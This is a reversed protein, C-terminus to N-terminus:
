LDGELKLVARAVQAAGDVPGLGLLARRMAARKTGDALLGEIVADTGGALTLKPDIRDTVIVAGGCMELPKANAVQHQDKHYPYPLFITPV